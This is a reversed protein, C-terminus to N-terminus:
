KEKEGGFRIGIGVGFQRIYNDSDEKDIVMSYEPMIQITSSPNISFGIGLGYYTQSIKEKIKEGDESEGSTATATRLILKPSFYVAIHQNFGKSLYFPIHVDQIKAEDGGDTMDLQSYGIGLAFDFPENELIQVKTDIIGGAPFGIKIGADWHKLIGYRTWIEAAYFPFEIGIRKGFWSNFSGYGLGVGFQVANQPITKATQYTSITACGTLVLVMGFMVVLVREKIM